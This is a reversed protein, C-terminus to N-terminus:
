EFGVLVFDVTPIHFLYFSVKSHQPSAKYPNVYNEIVICNMLIIQSVYSFVSLDLLSQYLGRRNTYLYVEGALATSCM